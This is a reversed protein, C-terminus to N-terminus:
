VIISNTKSVSSAIEQSARVSLGAFKMLGNEPYLLGSLPSIAL